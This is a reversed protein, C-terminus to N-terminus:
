GGLKSLDAVCLFLDRMQSLLALRNSRLDRDDDMVMVKDFFADVTERLSALGELAARYNKDALLPEVEARLSVLGEFLSKEEAQVLRDPDVLGPESVGAQRLINAVRKNAASLSIAAPLEIFQLVAEVRRHLDLVSAPQNAHVSEFVETPVRIGAAGDCYFAKLREMLYGLVEGAVAPADGAGPQRSAAAILLDQLTLELNGEIFIRLCGLAARRLGFPDKTGSPKEGISFIGTLLDLKDALSLIQGTVTAPISDGAFRPLYQEEIAGAVEEPEKDHLAYHRGMVGQLDPFEGVMDTLLDCKALRAARAVPSTDRGLAGAIETALREVRGSRDALSGLKRQFVVHALDPARSSLPKKRDTDWFFGADSLRPRVVRENGERVKGPDLSELNAIAIFRPLLLGGEGEVPFYRQHAQLTSVLVERPLDLFRDEFQGAVATPWEVLSTVEDLLSPDYLPTGGSEAATDAVLRAVLDRRADFDAIVKGRQELIAPYEGADAVSIPGPAHFRHGRTERGAPIDFLELPLVEDGLLALVWHVPRVFEFEKSGWRMRKPVPLNALAQDIVDPLIESAQRGHETGRFVVYTGKGTELRALSEFPVGCSEAFKTGARTPQGDADLAATVPPGRREIERDSQCRALRHVKVALRRPTAFGVVKDFALSARALGRGLGDRFALSLPNLARPPLEETGIEILFDRPEDM